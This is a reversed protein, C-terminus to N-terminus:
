WDKLKNGCREARDFSAIDGKVWDVRDISIREQSDEHILNIYDTDFETITYGAEKAEAECIYFDIKDSDLTDTEQVLKSNVYVKFIGRAYNIELTTKKM